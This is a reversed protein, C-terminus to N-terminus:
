EDEVLSSGGCVEHLEKNIVSDKLCAQEASVETPLRIYKIVSDDYGGIDVRVDPVKRETTKILTDIQTYCGHNDGKSIFNIVYGVDIDERHNMYNRCQAIHKDTTASTSSKLEFLVKLGPIEIDTRANIGHGVQFTNNNMDKFKYAFLGEYLINSYGCLGLNQIMVLQYAKEDMYSGVAHQTCYLIRRLDSHLKEQDPTFMTQNIQIDRYKDM